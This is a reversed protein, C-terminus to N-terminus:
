GPCRDPGAIEDAAVPSAEADPNISDAIRQYEGLGWMIKAGQKIRDLEV